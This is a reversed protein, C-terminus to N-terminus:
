RMWIAGRESEQISTYDRHYPEYGFATRLMAEIQVFNDSHPPEGPGYRSRAIVHAVEHLIIEEDGVDEDSITIIAEKLGEFDGRDKNRHHKVYEFHTGTMSM